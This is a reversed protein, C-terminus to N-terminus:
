KKMGNVELMNKLEKKVENFLSDWDGPKPQRFLKISPYWPNDNRNLLWRWDPICALLTWVPKGLAGALHALSTDVSIILDLNEIIAATDSFNNIDEALNIITSDSIQQDKQLSYLQIGPIDALFKFKEFTTSRNKDNDQNPNGAWAIGIKFKETSFKSKFKEVLKSDPKLYPVQNPISSLDTKFLSPLSMMHIYFDFDKAQDKEVFENIKFDQFLKKLEEKCELIIYCDKILPLYRIFQINDGFGQESIVLLRGKLSPNWKPKNFIRADSPNKKMFRSEYDKWGEEFRGLLLLILSRNWRADFFEKDLEIAKDYHKLAEEFEGKEAFFVGLNFHALHANIHIPNISLAKEFNEASEQEKGLFDYIMGLNNYFIADSKIKIANNILQIAEEHKGTQHAILGLLHLADSNPGKELIKRYIIEAEQLKGENHKQVAINLAESISEDM